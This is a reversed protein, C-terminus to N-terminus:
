AGSLLAIVGGFGLVALALGLPALGLVLLLGSGTLVGAVMLGLTVAVFVLAGKDFKDM